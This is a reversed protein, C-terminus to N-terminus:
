CIDYVDHTHKCLLVIAINSKRKDVRHCLLFQLFCKSHSSQRLLEKVDIAEKILLIHHLDEISLDSVENLLIVLVLLLYILYKFNWGQKVFPLELELINIVIHPLLPPVLVPCLKCSQTSIRFDVVVLVDEVQGLWVQFIEKIQM